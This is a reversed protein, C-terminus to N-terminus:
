CRVWEIRYPDDHIIVGDPSSSLFFSWNETLGESSCQAKILFRDGDPTVSSFSCDNEVGHLSTETIQLAGGEYGIDNSDCTWAISREDPAPYFLGTLSSIDATAVTTTSLTLAAAMFAIRM